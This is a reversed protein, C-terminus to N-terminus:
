FENVAMQALQPQKGLAGDFMNDLLFQWSILDSVLVLEEYGVTPHVYAALWPFRSTVFRELEAQNYVIGFEQVWANTHAEVLAAHPNVRYPFPCYIDPLIMYEKM